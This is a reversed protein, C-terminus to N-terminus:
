YSAHVHLVPKNFVAKNIYPYSGWLTQYCISMKLNWWNNQAKAAFTCTFCLLGPLLDSARKYWHVISQVILSLHNAKQVQYLPYNRAQKTVYYGLSSSKWSNLLILLKIYLKWKYSSSIAHKTWYICHKFSSGIFM